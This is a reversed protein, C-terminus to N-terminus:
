ISPTCAVARDMITCDGMKIKFFGKDGWTVDWSNSCIWYNLGGEVGWGIVKIAHGGLFEGEKHYYVGSKYILFDKYVQFSTSMPGNNYIEEQQTKTVGKVVVSGISCKYKKYAEGNVCKSVCAPVKGNGSVYPFCSDSVAGPATLYLYPTTDGGGNCGHDHPDCSVLDQPSIIVDTGKICFRDSLAESAGHAWCSGCHGQNRIPHVCKPWKDRSDFNEPLNLSAESEDDPSLLMSEKETGLLTKIEDVTWGRFISDEYSVVEWSVTKKLRDIFSNTVAIEGRLQLVVCSLLVVFILDKM